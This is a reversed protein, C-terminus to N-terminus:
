EFTYRHCLFEAVWVIRALPRDKTRNATSIRFGSTKKLIQPICVAISQAVYKDSTSQAMLPCM